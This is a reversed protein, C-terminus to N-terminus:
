LHGETDDESNKNQSYCATFNNLILTKYSSAFSTCTPNVNRRAAPNEPIFIPFGFFEAMFLALKQPYSNLQYNDSSNGNKM